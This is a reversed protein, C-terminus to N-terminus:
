SGNIITGKIFITSGIMRNTMNRTKREITSSHQRYIKLLCENFTDSITHMCICSVAAFAFYLMRVVRGRNSSFFCTKSKKQINKKKNNYIGQSDLFLWFCNTLFSNWLQRLVMFLILRHTFGDCRRQYVTLITRGTRM